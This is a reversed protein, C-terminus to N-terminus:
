FYVQLGGTVAPQTDTTSVGNNSTQAMKMGADFRLATANGLVFWKYGASPFITMASSSVGGVSNSGFTGEIGVFFIGGVGPRNETFNYDFNGGVGFNSTNSAGGSRLSLSGLVGYEITQKNWGYKVTLDIVNETANGSKVMNFGFDFGLYNNRSGAGGGMSMSGSSEGGGVTVSQGESFSGSTMQIIAQKGKVKKVNFTQGFAVPTALALVVFPTMFKM